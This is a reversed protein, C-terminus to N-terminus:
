KENKELGTIILRMRTVLFDIINYLTRVTKTCVSTGNKQRKHTKETLFGTKNREALLMGRIKIRPLKRKVEKRKHQRTPQKKERKM